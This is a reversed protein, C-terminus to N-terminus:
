QVLKHIGLVTAGCSCLGVLAAGAIPQGALYALTSAVCGIVIATLLVVVARLTLLGGSQPPQNAPDKLQNVPNVPQSM